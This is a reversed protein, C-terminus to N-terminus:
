VERDKRLIPLLDDPYLPMQGRELKQLSVWYGKLEGHDDRVTFAEKEYLSECRFDAKYLLVIEHGPEGKYTFLNELTTLYQVNMLDAETEERFQRRLAQDGREGFEIGGGLPRCFTEGAVPDHDEFVLLDDGRQVLAVAIPRIRRGHKTSDMM